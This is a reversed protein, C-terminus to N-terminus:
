TRPNRDRSIAGTLVRRLYRSSWETLVLGTVLGTLFSSVLLLPSM